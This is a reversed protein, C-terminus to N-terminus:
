ITTENILWENLKIQEIQELLEIIGWTMNNLKIVRQHWDYMRCIVGVFRIKSKSMNPYGNELNQSNTRRQFLNLTGHM